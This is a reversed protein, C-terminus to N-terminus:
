ALANIRAVLEKDYKKKSAIKKLVSIMTKNGVVAVAYADAALENELKRVRFDHNYHLHGAEHCAIAYQEEETLETFNKDYCMVIRNGADYNAFAYLMGNAAVTVPSYVGYVTVGNVNWLKTKGIYTGTMLENHTLFDETTAGVSKLARVVGVGLAVLSTGVIAGIIKKFM